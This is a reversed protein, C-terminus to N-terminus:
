TAKQNCFGLKNKYNQQKGTKVERATQYAM